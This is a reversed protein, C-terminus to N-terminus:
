ASSCTASTASSRARCPRRTSGGTPRTRGRPRRRRGPAPDHPPRLRHARGRGLRRRPEPTRAPLPLHPVPDAPRRHPARDFWGGPLGLGLAIGACSRRARPRDDRRPVRAGRDAARAGRRPVPEAGHLPTGPRVRPDDPGLEAGFYCGEKGDPRGSTLEGGLPFWGRWARGGHRMAIASRPRRRDLAFLAAPAASSGTSCGARRRRPRRRLLVRPRPLGRRHRAGVALDDDGACWRRRRRHDPARGSLAVAAIVTDAYRQLSDLKKQLPEADQAVEYTWRFGVIVDTVGMEELRRIGDVTYADMSIM